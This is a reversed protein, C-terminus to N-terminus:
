DIPHPPVEAFSMFVPVDFTGNEFRWVGDPGQATLSITGSLIVGDYNTIQMQGTADPFFGTDGGTIKALEGESSKIQYSGVGAFPIAVRVQDTIGAAASIDYRGILFLSDSVVV